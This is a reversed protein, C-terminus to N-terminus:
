YSSQYENEHVINNKKHGEQVSSINRSSCCLFVRPHWADPWKWQLSPALEGADWTKDITGATCQASLTSSCSEVRSKAEQLCQVNPISPPVGECVCPRKAHCLALIFELNSPPQSHMSTCLKYDFDYFLSKAYFLNM